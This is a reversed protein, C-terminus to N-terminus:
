IEYNSFSRYLRRTRAYTIVGNAPAVRAPALNLGSTYHLASFADFKVQAQLNAPKSQYLSWVLFNIVGVHLANLFVCFQCFISNIQIKRCNTIFKWLEVPLFFKLCGYSQSRTDSERTRRIKPFPLVLHIWNQRLSARCRLFFFIFFSHL